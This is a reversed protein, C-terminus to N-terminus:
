SGGYSGSGYTGSGYNLQSYDVTYGNAVLVVAQADTIDYIHGGLYLDVYNDPEINEQAVGNPLIWINVGKPTGPLYESIGDRYKRLLVPPNYVRVPPSFTPM